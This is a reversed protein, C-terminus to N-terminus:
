VPSYPVFIQNRKFSSFFFEVVSPSVYLALFFIRVNMYMCGWLLVIFPLPYTYIGYNLAHCKIRGLKIPWRAFLKMKVNEEQVNNEMMRCQLEFQFQDHLLLCVLGVCLSYSNKRTVCVYARVCSAVRDIWRHDCFEISFICRESEEHNCLTEKMENENRKEVKM